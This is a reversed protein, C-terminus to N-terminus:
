IHILSLSFIVQYPKPENALKKSNDEVYQFAGARLDDIYNQVCSQMNQSKSEKITSDHTVSEVNECNKEEPVSLPEKTLVQNRKDLKNIERNCKLESQLYQNLRVLSLIHNPGVHIAIADLVLQIILSPDCEPVSDQWYTCLDFEM